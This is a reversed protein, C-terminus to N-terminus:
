NCHLVNRDYPQGIVIVIIRASKAPRSNKEIIIIISQVIMKIHEGFGRDVIWSECYFLLYYLKM